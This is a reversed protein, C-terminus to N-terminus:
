GSELGPQGANRYVSRFSVRPLGARTIVQQVELAGDSSRLSFTTEQMNKRDYKEVVVLKAGKWSTSIRATGYRDVRTHPQGPTLRDGPGGSSAVRIDKGSASLTLTAPQRMLQQLEDRLQERPLRTFTPKLSEEDLIAGVAAVDADPPPAARHRPKPDKFKEFAADLVQGRDDSTATDLRWEGCLAACAATPAAGHAAGSALLLM